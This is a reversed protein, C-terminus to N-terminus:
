LCGQSEDRLFYVAGFLYLAVSLGVNFFFDVSALGWM